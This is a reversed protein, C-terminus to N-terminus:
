LFKWFIRGATALILIATVRQLAFSSLKGISWRSGSQGGLFVALLLLFFGHINIFSTEKTWQGMMGFLSNVFIFFSAAAAIQKPKGWGMFYLLPALFIGGGIGVLGSLFGLLAGLPLGIFWQTRKKVESERSILKQSFFMRVGAIFLSFGLLGLFYEKSIPIRGGLYSFPISSVCFPLVLSLSFNQTRIYHYLGGTVVVLNCLLAVKPLATYPLTASGFQFLFLLALYTSGGGLGASAYVWATM